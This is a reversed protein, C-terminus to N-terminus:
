RARWLIEKTLGDKNLLGTIDQYFRKADQPYGATARLNPLLQSFYTNFSDMFIERLFKSFISALAVSFENQDAKPLFEVTIKDSIKYLSSAAGERITEIWAGDLLQSLFPAYYDRGGQKDIKIMIAHNNFTTIINQILKGIQLLTVESKNLEQTFLRNLMKASLICTHCHCFRAEKNNIDIIPSSNFNLRDDNIEYNLDNKFWPSEAITEIDKEAQLLTLLSYLSTPLPEPRLERCFAAVTHKLGELGTASYAIKSDAVLLRSDKAQRKHTCSQAFVEWLSPVPKDPTHLPLNFATASVVLPGLKPGLGAEDIGAIIM